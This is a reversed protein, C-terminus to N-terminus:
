LQINVCPSPKRLVSRKRPSNEKNNVQVFKPVYQETASSHFSNSAGTAESYHVAFGEGVWENCAQIFLCKNGKIHLYTRWGFRTSYKMPRLSKRLTQFVTVYWVRPFDVSRDNIWWFCTLGVFVGAQWDWQVSNNIFLHRVFWLQYITYPM